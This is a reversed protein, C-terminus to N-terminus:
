RTSKDAIASDITILAGPTVGDDITADITGDGDAIKMLQDRWSKARATFPNLNDPTERRRYIMECTFVLAATKVAAPAPDTFPVTYRPSLLADVEQSALTIVQALLGTDAAGDKDDDLADVLHPAPIEAEIESQTVYAM